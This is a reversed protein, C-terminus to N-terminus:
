RPYMVIMFIEDRKIVNEVTKLEGGAIPHLIDWESVFPAIYPNERANTRLTSKGFNTYM